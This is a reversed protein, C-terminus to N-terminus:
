YIGDWHLILSWLNEKFSLLSLIICSSFTVYTIGCPAIMSMMKQNKLTSFVNLAAGAGVNTVNFTVLERADSRQGLHVILVPDTGAERARRQELLAHSAFYTSAVAVLLSIVVPVISIYESRSNAGWFFEIALFSLVVGLAGITIGLALRGDGTFLGTPENKDHRITYKAM